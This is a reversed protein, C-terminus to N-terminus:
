TKEEVWALAKEINLDKAFPLPEKLLRNLQQVVGVEARHTAASFIAKKGDILEGVLNGATIEQLLAQEVIEKPIELLEVTQEILLDQYAACHGMGGMEQVMHRLGAEARLLSHKSIGLETALADATKFGIGRIDLALRYPNERVKEIA